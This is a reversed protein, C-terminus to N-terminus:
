ADKEDAIKRNNNKKLVKIIFLSHLLNINWTRQNFGSKHDNLVNNQIM